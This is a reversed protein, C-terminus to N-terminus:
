RGDVRILDAALRYLLRRALSGMPGELTIGGPDRNPAIVALGDDRREIIWGVPFTEEAKTGADKKSVIAEVVARLAYFNKPDERDDPPMKDWRYAAENYAEEAIAHLGQIDVSQAEIAGAGYKEMFSKVREADVSALFGRWLDADRKADPDPIKKRLLERLDEPQMVVPCALSEPFDDGDGQWFWVAEGRIAESMAERRELRNLRANEVLTYGEPVAAAPPTAREVKRGYHEAVLAAEEFGIRQHATAMVGMKFLDKVVLNPVVTLLAALDSVVVAEGIVIPVEHDNAKSGSSGAAVSAIAAHQIMGIVTQLRSTAPVETLEAALERFRGREYYGTASLKVMETALAPLEARVAATVREIQEKADM